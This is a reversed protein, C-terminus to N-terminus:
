SVDPNSEVRFRVIDGIGLSILGPVSGLVIPADSRFEWLELRGEIKSLRSVIARPNELAMVESLDDLLEVVDASSVQLATTSM